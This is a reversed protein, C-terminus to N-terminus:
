VNAAVSEEYPRGSRVVANVITLLKRALAVLAVKVGKGATRLRRYFQGLPGESRAASLAALYLKTRVEARGGFIRRKGQWQGSENAVPALGVLASIQKGSLTGLEPLCALLTRSVVPGIGPLSQQLRDRAEWEPHNRIAEALARDVADIREQLWQLHEELGARVVPDDCSGLRNQEMVRMGVLQTRRTSLADLARTAADPLARPEPRLAEAYHALAQADCADTKALRGTAKAFDRAQRPNVVAVPIAAQQLARVLPVELGGTAEVVVLVVPRAQLLAVVRAIGEPTHDHRFAAGPRFAGDLTAKSVDIGVFCQEDM